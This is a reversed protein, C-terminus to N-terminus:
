IPFKFGLIAGSVTYAQSHTVDGRVFLEHGGKFRYGVTLTGGYYRSSVGVGLDSDYASYGGHGAVGLTLGSKRVTTLGAGASWGTKRSNNFSLSSDAQLVYYGGQDGKLNFYRALQVSPSIERGGFRYRRYTVAPTVILGAAPKFEVSGQLYLSPLISRNSTSTGAMFKVRVKGNLAQSLGAATFLANQERNVYVVDTHFGTNGLYLNTFNGVVWRDAFGNDAGYYGSYITASSDEGAALTPSAVVVAAAALFLQRKPRALM